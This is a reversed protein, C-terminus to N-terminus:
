LVRLDVGVLLPKPRWCPLDVGVTSLEGLLPFSKGVITFDAEKSPSSQGFRLCSAWGLFVGCVVCLSAV